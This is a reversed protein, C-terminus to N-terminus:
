REEEWRRLAMEERREYEREARCSSCMCPEGEEDEDWHEEPSALKWADYGPLEDSM